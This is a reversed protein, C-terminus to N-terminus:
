NFAKIIEIWSRLFLEIATCSSSLNSIFALLQKGVQLLLHYNRANFIIIM